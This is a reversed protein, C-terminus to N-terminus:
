RRPAPTPMVDKTEFQAAKAILAETTSNQALDLAKRLVELVATRQGATLAELRAALETPLAPGRRDSSPLDPKLLQSKDKGTKLWQPTVKVAEAIALLERPNKRLGSEINGITGQSVGAAAAVEGQSLKLAERAHKLREAITRV